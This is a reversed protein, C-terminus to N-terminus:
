WRLSWVHFCVGGRGEWGISEVDGLKAWKTEIQAMNQFHFGYDV